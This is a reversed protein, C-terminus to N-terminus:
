GLEAAIANALADRDVQSVLAQVVRGSGDRYNAVAATFAANLASASGNVGDLAAQTPADVKTRHATRFARVAQIRDRTAVRWGELSFHTRGPTTTAPDTPSETWIDVAPDRLWVVFRGLDKHLHALAPVIKSDFDLKWQTDQIM